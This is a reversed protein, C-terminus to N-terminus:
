LTSAWTLLLPTLSVTRLYRGSKAHSLIIIYCRRDMARQIAAALLDQESLLKLSEEDWIQKVQAANCIASWILMAYRCTIMLPEMIIKKLFESFFPGGMGVNLTCHVPRLLFCVGKSDAFPREGRGILKRCAQKIRIQWHGLFPNSRRVVLGQKTTGPVDQFVYELSRM